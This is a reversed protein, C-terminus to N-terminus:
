RLNELQPEILQKVGIYQCHSKFDEIHQALGVVLESTKALQGNAMVLPDIYRAKNRGYFEAEEKPAYVFEKGPKLRKLYAAIDRDDSVKLKTLIAADTTFLDQENIIGKELAVKLANALLFWAGHSTASVYGLRSVMLTALCLQSAVHVDDFYFQNNKIKASNVILEITTLSLIGIMYGDRMFYDWRDFSLEPTKNDLLYYNGKQFVKNIDLDYKQCLKPIESGMIIQKLFRDHYEQNHDDMVFDVVHSFATHPVDHLLCAVQEELPRKLRQSLYWAGFSHEFRNGNFIPQIFHTAGDQSIAKLRQLPASQILSAILPNKVEVKGYIRDTIIM